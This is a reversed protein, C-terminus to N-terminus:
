PEPLPPPGLPRGEHDDDGAHAGARAVVRELRDLQVEERADRGPTTASFGRCPTEGRSFGLAAPSKRGKLLCLRDFRHPLPELVHLATARLGHGLNELPHPPLM